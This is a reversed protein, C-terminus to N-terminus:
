KKHKIRIILQKNAYEVNDNARFSYANQNASLLTM